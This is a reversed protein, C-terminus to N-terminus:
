GDHSSAPGQTLQDWSIAQRDISKQLDRNRQGVSDAGRMLLPDCMAIQLWGVHHDRRVPTHLDEIKAQRLQPFRSCHFRHHARQGSLREGTFAANHPREGKHCRFLGFPFRNVLAGVNKESPTM